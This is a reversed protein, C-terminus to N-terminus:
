SGETSVSQSSHRPVAHKLISTMLIFMLLLLRLSQNHTSLSYLKMKEVLERRSRCLVSEASPYWRKDSSQFSIRKMDWWEIVRHSLLETKRQGCKRLFRMHTPIISSLSRGNLLADEPAVQLYPFLVLLLIILAYEAFLEM